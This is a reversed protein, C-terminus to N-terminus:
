LLAPNPQFDESPPQGWWMVVQEKEYEKGTRCEPCNVLFPELTWTVHSIGTSDFNILALPIMHNCHFCPIAWYLQKDM